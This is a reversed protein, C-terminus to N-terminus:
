TKMGAMGPAKYFGMAEPHAMILPIKPKSNLIANWYDNTLNFYATALLINADRPTYLLM